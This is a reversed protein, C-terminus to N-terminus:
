PSKRRALNQLEPPPLCRPDEPATDHPVTELPSQPSAKPKPARPSAPLFYNAPMSPSPPPTALASQRPPQLAKLASLRSRGNGRSDHRNQSETSHHPIIATKSCVFLL